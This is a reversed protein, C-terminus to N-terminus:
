AVRPSSARLWGELEPFAVRSTCDLSLPTVAVQREVRLVYVDTDPPFTEPPDGPAYGVTGPEDWSKRRPRLPRYYRKHAQRCLRWPTAPTADAPVDVKIVDVDPPLTGDQLLRQAFYHTFHAAASFDVADSHSLHYEKPTELSVALARFGLAAAEFAAGITGSVTIGTGLNEGYNIGSVVLDPPTDLIELVAHLVAQAPSGGVAYASLRHGNLRVDMPTILGDSTVPLSRGAGSSQQRPAVIVVQGLPILAQAAALLGPSRVGDDNTVLILPM